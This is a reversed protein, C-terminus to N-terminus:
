VRCIKFRSRMFGGVLMGVKPMMDPEVVLVYAMDPFKVHSEQDDPKYDKPGKLTFSYSGYLSILVHGM